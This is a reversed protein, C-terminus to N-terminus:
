TGQALWIKHVSIEKAFLFAKVFQSGRIPVGLPPCIDGVSKNCVHSVISSNERSIEQTINGKQSSSLKRVPLGCTFFQVPPVRSNWNGKLYSGQPYLISLQFNFVFFFCFLLFSFVLFVFFVSLFNLFTNNFNLYYLEKDLCAPM